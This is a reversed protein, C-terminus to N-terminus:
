KLDVLTSCIRASPHSHLRAQQLLSLLAVQREMVTKLLTIDVLATMVEPPLNRCELESVSENARLLVSAKLVEIVSDRVRCIENGFRVFGKVGPLDAITSTHVEEPDFSIFLYGPFLQKQVYRSTNRDTRKIVETRQVSYVEVGLAELRGAVLQFAHLNHTILFWNRM